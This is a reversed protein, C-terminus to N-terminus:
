NSEAGGGRQLAALGDADQRSVSM